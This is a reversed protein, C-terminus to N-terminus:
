AMRDLFGDLARKTEPRLESFSVGVAFQGDRLSHVYAVRGPLVLPRMDPIRVDIRVPEDIVVSAASILGVGGQSVDRMVTKLQDKSNLEIELRRGYRSANSPTGGMNDIFSYLRDRTDTDLVSFRIGYHYGFDGTEKRMIQAKAQLSREDEPLGIALSLDDGSKGLDLESELQAGGRSLDILRCGHVQQQSQVVCPVVTAVRVHIRHDANAM